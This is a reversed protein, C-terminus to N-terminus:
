ETAANDAIKELVEFFVAQEHPSIGKLLLESHYAIYYLHRQMEDFGAPTLVLEYGRKDTAHPKRRILGDKELANAIVMVGSRAIRLRAAVESQTLGPNLGIIRLVAFRQPALARGGVKREYDEYILMLTKRLLPGILRKTAVEGEAASVQGRVDDLDTESLEADMAQESQGAKDAM